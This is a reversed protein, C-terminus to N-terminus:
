HIPINIRNRYNGNYKLLVNPKEIRILRSISTASCNYLMAVDKIKAGAQILTVWENVDDITFRCAPNNVGDANPTLGTLIAHQANELATVWELNSPHNNKKNGDKHNVIPKNDPNPILTEAVLRHYRYSKNKGKLSLAVVMYGTNHDLPKRICAKIKFITGRSNIIYRELSYIVGDEDMEYVGEYGKIPVRM